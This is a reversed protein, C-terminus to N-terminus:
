IVCSFLRVETRSRQELDALDRLTAQHRATAEQLVQALDAGADVSGSQVRSRVAADDESGQRTVPVSTHKAM